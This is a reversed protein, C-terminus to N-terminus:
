RLRETYRCIGAGYNTCGLFLGYRGNREVLHGSGCSPCIREEHGCQEQDCVVRKGSKDQRMLGVGCRKCAQTKYDCLPYNSCSFFSGHPGTRQVLEGGGCVPCKIHELGAYGEATVLDPGYQRIEDLFRSPKTPDAVLYVAHRARTLAVYFLRREEAHSYAEPAALVVNLLPDDTIESPFGYRGARLGLVVVSDAELGKAKHATFFGVDLRPFEQRVDHWPFDDSEFNYRGMIMVSASKSGMRDIIDRLIACAIAEGKGRPRHITVRAESVKTQTQLIKRIQSPNAQIFRSAVAEIRDNFRFTKDLVVTETFGFHSEFDRMLAIDSGAFRYIAQWDDGVCFLRHSPQQSRLAKILRARGVSIDQFEDVMICTFPSRFRGTEVYHAAKMIMDHFDIEGRESLIRNYSEVVPVFVDLFAELRKDLMRLSSARERIGAATHGGGKFHGLFVALLKTFASFQNNNKLRTLAEHATIPRFVVGMERLKQELTSLLVGQKRQYSYTEVLRTEHQAHLVRKWELSALYEERNIFPPTEGRSDLALHEIYIASENLYFDPRYQRRHPTATPVEYDREYEYEIGNLCLFNAIECEEFSKVQEGQLTIIEHDKLYAYYDGLEEFEFPSIYPSFYSQFYTRLVMQYQETKALNDVTSELLRYFAREDEAVKSLSPKKGEVEAIIKLGLAHFTSAQISKGIRQQIRDSLEQAATRNFAVLLLAAPKCLGTKVVYGAKAIIVSTKGTGAGAVVRTNEEHTIVALRQNHTLPAAEVKDFYDKFRRLESTVFQQNARVRFESPDLLFTRIIALADVVETPAIDSLEDASFDLIPGIRGFSAIAAELEHNATWKKGHLRMTLDRAWAVIRTTHVQIIELANLLDSSRTLIEDRLAPLDFKPIGGLTVPERDSFHCTLHGWIWGAEVHIETLRDLRVPTDLESLGEIELATSLLLAREYKSKVRRLLRAWPSPIIHVRQRM